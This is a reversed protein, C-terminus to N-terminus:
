AQAQALAHVRASTCVAITMFIMPDSMLVLKLVFPIRRARQVAARQTRNTNPTQPSCCRQVPSLVVSCTVHWSGVQNQASVAAYAHSGGCRVQLARAQGRNLSKDSREWRSAHSGPDETGSLLPPTPKGDHRTRSECCGAPSLNSSSPQSTIPGAHAPIDLVDRQLSLLELM